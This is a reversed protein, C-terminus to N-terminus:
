SAPVSAELLGGALAAAQAEKRRVAELEIQARVPNNLVERAARFMARWNIVLALVAAIAAEIGALGASTKNDYVVGVTIVPNVVDIPEFDRVHTSSLFHWLTELVILLLTGLLLLALLHGPSFNAMVRRFLRTLWAGAGMYIVAYAILVASASFENSTSSFHSGTRSDWSMALVAVVAMLALSTLGFILGRTGGPLFPVWLMRMRRTRPLGRAVRRSIGEPEAIVYLAAVTIFITTLVIIGFFDTGSPGRSFVAVFVLVALWAILWQGTVTLRIGSSRNDSEFTLQAIAIQQCLFATSIALFVGIAIAWWVAPEALSVIYGMTFSLQAFIAMGILSLVIVGLSGFSQSIKNKTQAGIALAVSSFVFAVVLLAGLDFATHVFDFGPILSTFAIFPTIASFYVLVQVLASLSKGWVIQRPSLATIQVLELTNEAREEVISRYAAYPVIVLSAVCLIMFFLVFFGEASSGYEISDGVMSVGFISGGWAVLLLLVFTGVFQRSKLAQRVEKVVIANCHDGVTELRGIAFNLASM